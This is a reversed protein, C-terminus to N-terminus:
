IKNGLTGESNIRLAAATLTHEPMQSVIFPVNQVKFEATNVSNISEKPYNKQFDRPTEIFM